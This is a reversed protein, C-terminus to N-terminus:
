QEVLTGDGALTVVARAGAHSALTAAVVSLAVTPTEAAPGHAGGCAALAHLKVRAHRSITPCVGGDKYEDFVMTSAVVALARRTRVLALLASAVNELAHRNSSKYNLELKDMWTSSGLGDVLVALLPPPGAGSPATLRLRLRALSACLPLTGVCHEVSVCRLAREVEEALPSAGAALAALQARVCAALRHLPIRGDLDLYAVEVAAGGRAAETALRAAIFCLMASKASGSPGSIEVIEGAALGRGDPTAADVLRLGCAIPSRRLRAFLALASEDPQVSARDAM